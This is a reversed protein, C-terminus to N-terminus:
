AWSAVAPFNVTPPGVILRRPPRAPAVPWAMARPERRQGTTAAVVLKHESARADWNFGNREHATQVVAAIREFLPVFPGM